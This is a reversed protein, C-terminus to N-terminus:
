SGRFRKNAFGIPNKKAGRKLIHPEKDEMSKLKSSKALEGSLLFLEIGCGTLQHEQTFYEKKRLNKKLRM